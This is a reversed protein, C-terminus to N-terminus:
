ALLVPSWLPPRRTVRLTSTLHVNNRALKRDLQSQATWRTIIVLRVGRATARSSVRRKGGTPRNKPKNMKNIKLSLPGPYVLLYILRSLRPWTLSPSDVAAAARWYSERARGPYPYGIKLANQKDCNQKAVAKHETREFDAQGVLFLRM